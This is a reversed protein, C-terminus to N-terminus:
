AISEPLLKFRKRQKLRYVSFDKYDLTFIKSVGAREGLAVLSADAFDMPLDHYKKMLERCRIRTEKDPSSIEVGGREAFLWLDDQVKWSFNLLYFCETIVPWTTM